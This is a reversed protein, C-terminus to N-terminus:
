KFMSVHMLLMAVCLGASLCCSLVIANMFRGFFTIYHRDILDCISNIFPIGPVLYLVSSGVAIDPTTGIDFLFGGSAIVASAFASLVIALRFDLGHSTLVQKITFGAATGAFVLLMAMLDGGFLRCFAAGACAVLLMLKWPNMAHFAQIRTLAEAAAVFTIERDHLQWSLKSLSAIRAFSPPLEKIGIVSTCAGAPSEVTIHIHRPLISYEVIMGLSQAIRQMNKELRVCTSGSGFLLVAYEALFRCVDSPSPENCLKSWKM